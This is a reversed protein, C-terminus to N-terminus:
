ADVASDEPLQIFGDRDHDVIVKIHRNGWFDVLYNEEDFEEESSFPHFERGKKNYKIEEGALEHWKDGVLKKGKLSMIFKNRNDAIYLDVPEESEFFRPFYSYTQKFNGIATLYSNFRAKTDTKEAGGILGELNAIVITALIGIITIVVLLEILTFGRRFCMGAQSSIPMASLKQKFGTVTTIAEHTTKMM